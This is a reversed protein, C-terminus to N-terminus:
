KFINPNLSLSLGFDIGGDKNISVKELNVNEVVEKEKFILIQQGLSEFSRTSGSLSVKSERSDLSLQSFWVQPHCNNQLFLFVKSNNLHQDVIGSFDGIKKVYTQVEAELVIREQTREAKIANDLETLVKRSNNISSNLVFIAIIVIILLLLSLYFSYNLWQPIQPTKKPIIEM